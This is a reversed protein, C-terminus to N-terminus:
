RDVLESLQQLIRVRVTDAQSRDKDAHWFIEQCGPAELVSGVGSELLERAPRLRDEPVGQREAQQVANRLMILYEYDEVSERIAEMQKAPTVSHADLFLPTYAANKVAYENWSSAGGNDGFAWFFSGTAGIQWCHWAQLRYYSYPDLLRAPGSCSYLQLTKGAQQWQRYFDHFSEAAGLWAVRNPCIVDSAEWLAQSAKHPDAYTPDEWVLVNPEAAHIARSWAIIPAVDSNEHPEDLLLLALRDASVGRGNLHKVWATIWKGVNAEFAPSGIEAGGLSTPTNVFVHYRRADPWQSLWQDMEQTDLQISGDDRFTVNSMVGGTAWPANVFRQQLHELLARRNEETIGYSGGGNTYSWGGLLLTPQQPFRIPYVHLGLPIQIPSQHPAELVLQLEYQRADLNEVHFTLWLQSPIGPRMEFQWSDGHRPLLELAAAVPQGKRTDTWVTQYATICSAIATAAPGQLRCALTVPANTANALSVAASRYEGLMVHMDIPQGSTQRPPTAHLDLPDWPNAPWAVVAECGRGKWISAQIALLEAHAANLPLRTGSESLNVGETTLRGSVRELRDRLEAALSSNETALQDIAASIQQRDAALRRQIGSTVQLEAFHEEPDTPVTAGTLELATWADPGRLVEVEDVFGYAGSLLIMLRVYRGHTQLRHTILRRVQYGKDPLPGHEAQDLAILDGATRFTTGDDSVLLYISQPWEVGATGAATRFSVGAIPEVQGLDITIAAYGSAVWGVTGKNTWFYGSSLEGDTLQVTDGADHCHEYRPVPTLTYPKGRAVNPLESSEEATISFAATLCILCSALLFEISHPHIM